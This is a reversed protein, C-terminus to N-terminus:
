ALRELGLSFDGGVIQSTRSVAAIGQCATGDVEFPGTTRCALEMGRHFLLVEQSWDRCVVHCGPGPGLVLTDALLLVADSGPQTRHRSVFELRASSSLPHPRVFRLKVAPGLELCDGDALTAAGVVPRGNIQSPRHAVLVYGEGDRRISAHGRSLDGLIPVDVRSGAVPQGLTVENGECVLYGGVGDVWLLFRGAPSAEPLPHSDPSMPAARAQPAPGATARRQTRDRGPAPSVALWAQRQAALAAACEPAITLWEDALARVQPWDRRALAAHLEGALRDSDAAQHALEERRVILFELSPRLRAATALQHQAEIFRAERAARRAAGILRAAERLRLSAATPGAHRDLGDLRELAAAANDAALFAEVESLAHDLLQRRLRGASSDRAGLRDAADLDRWGAQSQGDVLRAQGRALHQRAIEAQLKRAPLFERVATDNALRGAEELRGQRLAEQAARLQLRWPQFM